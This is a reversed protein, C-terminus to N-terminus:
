KSCVTAIVPPSASIRVRPPALTSLGTPYISPDCGAGHIFAHTKTGHDLPFLPCFVWAPNFHISISLFPYNGVPSEPLRTSYNITAQLLTLQQGKTSQLKERLMDVPFLSHLGATLFLINHWFLFLNLDLTYYYFSEGISHKLNFNIFLM